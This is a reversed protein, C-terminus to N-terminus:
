ELTSALNMAREVKEYAKRDSSASLMWKVRDLYKPATPAFRQFIEHARARHGAVAACMALVRMPFANDPEEQHAREASQYAQEPQDSLLYAFASFAMAGAKGRGVPSLRLARSSFQLAQDYDGGYFKGAALMFWGMSLNPNLEVCREVLASSNVGFNGLSFSAYGLVEPDDPSLEVSKRALDIATRRDSELDVNAGAVYLRAYCYAALAYAFAYDPALQM